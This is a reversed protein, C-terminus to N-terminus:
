YSCFDGSKTGVFLFEQNPKSFTMCSYDRVMSGTQMVEYNVTGLTADLQWLTLKKSGSVSFQYKDTDRLKIDKV